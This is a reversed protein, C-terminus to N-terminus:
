LCWLLYSSVMKWVFASQPSGGLWRWCTKKVVRKPMVRAIGVRSFIASMANVIECHLLHDV